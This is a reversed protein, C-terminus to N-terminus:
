GQFMMPNGPNFRAGICPAAAFEGPPGRNFRSPLSKIWLLGDILDDSEFLPHHWDHETGIPVFTRSGLM